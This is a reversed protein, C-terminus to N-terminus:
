RAVEAFEIAYNGNEWVTVQSVIELTDIRVYAASNLTPECVVSKANSYKEVLERQSWTIFHNLLSSEPM